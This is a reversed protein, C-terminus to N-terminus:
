TLAKLVMCGELLNPGRGMLPPKGDCPGQQLGWSVALYALFLHRVGVWGKDRSCALSSALPAFSIDAIRAPRLELPGSVSCSRLASPPSSARPLASLAGCDLVRGDVIAAPLLVPPSLPPRM